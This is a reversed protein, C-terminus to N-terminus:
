NVLQNFPQLYIILHTYHSTLGIMLSVTMVVIYNQEISINICIRCCIFGHICIHACNYVFSNITLKLSQGQCKEIIM